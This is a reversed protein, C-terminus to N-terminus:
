VVSKRDALGHVNIVTCISSAASSYRRAAANFVDLPRSYFGISAFLDVLVFLDIWVISVIWDFVDLIM